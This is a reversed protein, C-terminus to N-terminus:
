MRNLYIDFTVLILVESIMFRRAFYDKIYQFLQVNIPWVGKVNCYCWFWFTSITYSRNKSYAILRWTNKVYKTPLSLFSPQLSLFSPPSFLPHFPTFLPHLYFFSPSLSLFSPPFSHFSPPHSFPTSPLSFLTSSFLPHFPSFLPHFLTFLLHFPSFIPNFPSSSPPLTHIVSVAPAFIKRCNIKEVNLSFHQLYLISIECHSYIYRFFRSDDRTWLRFLFNRKKTCFQFFFVPFKM